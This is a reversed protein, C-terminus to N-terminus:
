SSEGMVTAVAAALARLQEESLRRGRVHLEIDDGLAVRTWHSQRPGEVAPLPAANPAEGWLRSAVQALPVGSGQLDKVRLLAELHERTYHKGRGVGTPAPLLGRQVYYRVTRRSVGGREALEAIGFSEDEQSM